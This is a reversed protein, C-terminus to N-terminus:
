LKCSKPERGEWSGPFPNRINILPNIPYLIPIFLFILPLLFLSVSPNISDASHSPYFLDPDTSPINDPPDLLEINMKWTSM